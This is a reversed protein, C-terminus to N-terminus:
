KCAKKNNKQLSDDDLIQHLISVPIMYTSTGYKEKDKAYLVGVVVGDKNYVASGSSGPEGAASLEWVFKANGGLVDRGRSLVYGTTDTLEDGLPYGTVTVSDGQKADVPSLDVWVDLAEVTTIIGIDATNSVTSSEVTIDRGDHGTVELHYPKEIVHKNTIITHADIAFGSGTGFFKCANNRIRFAAREGETFGYPNELQSNALPRPSPSPVFDLPTFEPASPVAGCGALVLALTAAAVAQRTRM